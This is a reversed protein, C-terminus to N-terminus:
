QGREGCAPAKEEALSFNTSRSRPEEELGANCTDARSGLEILQAESVIVNNMECTVVTVFTM